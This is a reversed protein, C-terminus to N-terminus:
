DEARYSSKKKLKEEYYKIHQTSLELKKNLEKVFNNSERLKKVLTKIKSKDNNQMDYVSMVEQKVRKCKEEIMAELCKRKLKKEKIPHDENDDDDNENQKEEEKKKIEKKLNEIQLQMSSNQESLSEITQSYQVIEENCKNIVHEQQTMKSTQEKITQNLKDIIIEQAEIKKIKNNVRRQHNDLQAQKKDITQTLQKFVDSSVREQIHNMLDDNNKTKELDNTLVEELDEGELQQPTEEVINKELDNAVGKLVEELQQPTEKELDNAVGKLVEELDEQTVENELGGVLQQPTEEVINEVFVELHPNDNNLLPMDMNNDYVISSHSDM